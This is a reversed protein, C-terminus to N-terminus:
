HNRSMQRQSSRSCWCKKDVVRRCSASPTLMVVLASAVLVSATSGAASALVLAKSQIVLLVILDLRNRYLYCDYSCVTTNRLKKKVFFCRLGRRASRISAFEILISLRFMLFFYKAEDIADRALHRKDIRSTHTYTCMDTCYERCFLFFVCFCHEESFHSLSFLFISRPTGGGSKNAFM